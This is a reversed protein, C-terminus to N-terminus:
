ITCCKIWDANDKYEVHGFWRPSGKRIVLRVSEMGALKRLETSKKKRHFYLQIEM